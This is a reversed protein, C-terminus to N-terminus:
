YENRNLQSPRGAGAANAALSAEVEHIALDIHAGIQSPAQVADLLALASQLHSLVLDFKDNSSNTFRALKLGRDLRPADAESEPRTVTAM